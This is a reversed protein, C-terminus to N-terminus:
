KLSMNNEFYVSVTDINMDMVYKLDEIWSSNSNWEYIIYNEVSSVAPSKSNEKNFFNEVYQDNESFVNKDWIIDAKIKYIGNNESLIYYKVTLDLYRGTMPDTESIKETITDFPIAKSYIEFLENVNKTLQSELDKSFTPKDAVLGALIETEYDSIEISDALLFIKNEFQALVKEFEVISEVKGSNNIRVTYPISLKGINDILKQLMQFTEDV